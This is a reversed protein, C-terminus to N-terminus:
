SRKRLEDRIETLLVIDEAPAAPAAPAEAQKRRFVNMAKIVLFIAFAVIVFDIIANMFIGINMTVAPTVVNGGEVVAAKLTLKIDKFDIGGMIMGVPPMIVDNVFSTVVKGFAAGIVVGVALDVVNGKAAFEKFESILGM